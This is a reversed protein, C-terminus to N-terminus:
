VAEAVKETMGRVRVLEDLTAGRIAGLSGFHKLLAKRRRPGLGPIDDLQSTIKGRLKRHYSIAFRHAEDRARTLLAFSLSGPRLPLPRSRGPLFVREGSREEGRVKDKALAAVALELGFNELAELAMSLQGKGGDVLLLDPLADEANDFSLHLSREVAQRMAAFDDGAAAGRIRLRRYEAKCPAGDLVSVRSAVTNRGQITSIDICHIRRPPESLGLLRRVEEMEEDAKDEGRQRSEGALQANRCAMELAKRKDGREPVRIEVKSGRRERLWSQIAGLDGPELPVLVLAPVYRDGEYLQTLFSSLLEADPLQTRFHHVRSGELGLDRYSLLSFHVWDEGRHLGIVDRDLEGPSVVRQKETILSLAELHEKATQAEEFRLERSAREMRSNLERCVEATDGGLIRLARELLGRYAARDILGVCPAPCRGIQHKLCPRSRNLFVTDTCDRLPTVRHLLRLTRRVASASSFPGFYLKGDDKRRRVLRFWPWDEAPDLRLMLYAKDDKLRINHKPKLKKILTNELLLAEQETETVLFDLDEAEQELFLLLFRGDGGPRLYSAVRKKLDQAKGIYLVRGRADKFIYVGPLGPLKRALKTVDARM